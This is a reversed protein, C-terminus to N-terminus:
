AHLDACGNNRGIRLPHPHNGLAGMERIGPGERREVCRGRDPGYELDSRSAVSELQRQGLGVRRRLQPQDAGSSGVTLLGGSAAPSATPLSSLGFNTAVQYNVADLEIEILVPTMNTVGALQMIVSNGSALAANPVGIEYWGPMNTSDVAVFGGSTFTGLTSTVATISTSSTDGERCYYWALGSSTSTLGALGKLTPQSSDAVFIRLVKSTTGRNLKLKM